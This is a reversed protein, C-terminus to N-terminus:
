STLSPILAKTLGATATSREDPYEPFFSQSRDVRVVPNKLGFHRRTFISFLMDICRDGRELKHFQEIAPVLWKMPGFRTAFWCQLSM